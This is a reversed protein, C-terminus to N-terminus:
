PWIYGRSVRRGDPAKRASSLLGLNGFVLVWNCAVNVLNATILTIM